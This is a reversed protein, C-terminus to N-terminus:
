SPLHASLKPYLQRIFTAAVEDARAEGEAPVPVILRVLAGDTRNTRLAGDILYLKAIYESTVVHGRMQYWFIVVHRELGKQVLYRNIRIRETGSLTQVDLERVTTALPQWGTGPLCKMPSHISQGTRQSTYFGIYLSVPPMAAAMYTRNVHDNVGLADVVKPELPDDRGSWDGIHASLDSLPTRHLLAEPRSVWRVGAGTTTLTIIIAVFRWTM